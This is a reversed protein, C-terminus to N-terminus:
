APRGVALHEVPEPADDWPPAGYIRLPKGTFDARMRLTCDWRQRPPLEVPYGVWAGINEGTRGDRILDLMLQAIQAPQM